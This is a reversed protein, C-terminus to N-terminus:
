HSPNVKFSKERKTELILMIKSSTWILCTQYHQPFARKFPGAAAMKAWDFFPGALM